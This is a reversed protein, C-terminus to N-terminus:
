GEWGILEIVERLAKSDHNLAVCERVLEILSLELTRLANLSIISDVYLAGDVDVANGTLIDHRSDILDRTVRFIDTM